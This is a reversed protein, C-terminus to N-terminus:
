KVTYGEKKAQEVQRRPITGALKGKKYIEVPEYNRLEEMFMSPDLGAEMIANLAEQMNKPEYTSPKGFEKGLVIKGTSLGTKLAIARQAQAWSPKLANGGQPEYVTTPNGNEDVQIKSVDMGPPPTFAQPPPMGMVQAANRPNKMTTELALKKKYTNMTKSEDILKGIMDLGPNTRTKLEALNQQVLDTWAAM